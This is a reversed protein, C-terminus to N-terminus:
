GRLCSYFVFVSRNENDCSKGVFFYNWLSFHCLRIRLSFLITIGSCPRSLFFCSLFSKKKSLCFLSSFFLVNRTQIIGLSIPPPLPWDSTNPPVGDLQYNHWEYTTHLFNRLYYNVGTSLSTPTTGEIVIKGDQSYLNFFEATDSNILKLNFISPQEPEPFIRKLLKKVGDSSYIGGSCTLNFLLFCLLIKMM